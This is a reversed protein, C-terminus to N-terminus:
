SPKYDINAVRKSHQAGIFTTELFIIAMQQIERLSFFRAGFCAINADNHQRSLEAIKENYILAARVRPYKNAVISVGVGSGCILIGFSDKTSTIQKALIHAYHTYDTKESTHAGLDCVDFSQEFVDKLTNKADFGAHDSSLFLKKM